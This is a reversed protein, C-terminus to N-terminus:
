LEWCRLEDVVPFEDRCVFFCRALLSSKFLLLLLFSAAVDRYEDHVSLERFHTAAMALTFSPVMRYEAM